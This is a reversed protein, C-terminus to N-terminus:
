YPYVTVIALRSQKAAEQQGPFDVDLTFVHTIKEWEILDNKAMYEVAGGTELIRRHKDDLASSSDYFVVDSFLEKRGTHEPAMTSPSEPAPSSTDPHLPPQQQPKPSFLTTTATQISTVISKFANHM